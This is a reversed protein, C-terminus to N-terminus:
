YFSSRSLTVVHLGFCCLPVYWFLYNALLKLYNWLTVITSNNLVYCLLNLSRCIQYTLDHFWRTLTMTTHIYGIILKWSLFFFIALFFSLLNLRVFCPWQHGWHGLATTAFNSISARDDPLFSNSCLSSPVLM